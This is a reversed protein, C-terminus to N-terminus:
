LAPTIDIVVLIDVKSNTKVSVNQTKLVPAKITWKQVSISSNGVKDTATIEFTYTGPELNSFKKVAGSSCSTGAGNLKCAITNVGSIADTVNFGLSITSTM